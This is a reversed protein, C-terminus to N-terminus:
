TISPIEIKVLLGGLKSKHLTIEGFHDTIIEKAIALGLGSGETTKNARYFPKFINDIYTKSIGPGDDAFDIVVEDTNKYTSIRMKSGYKLGNEIINAIARLFAIEKVSIELKQKSDLSFFIKEQWINKTSISKLIWKNVDIKTKKEKASTSAYTLYYRIMQEMEKIDSLMEKDKGSIECYLKLRTLPTRLDHSIMALMKKNKNQYQYFKEQIKIISKGAAKIEKAGSPIFNDPRKGKYFNEATKTLETITKIQNKIFVIAIILFITTISILWLLYVDVSYHVLPKAHLSIYKYKFGPISIYIRKEKSSFLVELTESIAGQLLSKFIKIEKPLKKSSRGNCSNHLGIHLSSAQDPNETIYKIEKVMLKSISSSMNYWHRKYFIYVISSQAILIPLVIILIFRKLLAKPFFDRLCFM